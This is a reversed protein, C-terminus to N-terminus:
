VINNRRPDNSRVMRTWGYRERTLKRVQSLHDISGPRFQSHPKPMGSYSTVQFKDSARLDVFGYDCTEHPHSRKHFQRIRHTHSQLDSPSMSTTFLSVRGRHVLKESVKRLPMSATWGTEEQMERRAADHSQEGRDVMGGPIMWEGTRKNQVVMVRNGRPTHPTVFSAYDM